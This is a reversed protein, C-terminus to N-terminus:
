VEPRNNSNTEAAANEENFARNAKRVNIFFYVSLFLSICADIITGTGVGKKSSSVSEVGEYMEYFFYLFMFASILLLM